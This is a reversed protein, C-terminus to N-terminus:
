LCYTPRETFYNRVCVYNVRRCRKLLANVYSVQNELENLDDLSVNYLVNRFCLFFDIMERRFLKDRGERTEKRISYLFRYENDRSKKRSYM